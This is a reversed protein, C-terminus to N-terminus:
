NHIGTCDIEAVTIPNAANADGNQITVTAGTATKASWLIATLGLASPDSATCTLAYNADAFPTSWTFSNTCQGYATGTPTTCIGSTIIVGEYQTTPSTPCVGGVGIGVAGWVACHGATGLGAALPVFTGNGATNMQVLTMGASSGSGETVAFPPLFNLISEPTTEEFNGEVNQYFLTPLSALCSVPTNFSTGNSGLCQGTTGGNGDALYGGQANIMSHLGSGEVDVGWGPIATNVGIAGVNFLNYGSLSLPGSISQANHNYPLTLVPVPYTIRGNYLPIGDSLNYTSGPGIFQWQQPFGPVTNGAANALTANYGAIPWAADNAVVQCITSNLIPVAAGTTLPASQTFTATPSTTQGQLTEGGSSSGIYVNMGITNIAAGGFPPSVVISGTTTLQVQIEPSPLTQRSFTDYWTIEVFYNGRPLTGTSLNPNVVPGQLPNRISVIAGNADTACASNAVVISTGGVFMVATPQFTLSYNSAPIGNSGSMTGIVSVYPATFQALASPACCVFILTALLRVAALLGIWAGITKNPQKTELTLEEEM